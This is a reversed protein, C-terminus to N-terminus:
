SIGLKKKGESSIMDRNWPPNWVIEVNAEKVGPLRSLKAQADVAIAKGMGCGPATLTMQIEAKYANGPLESLEMKYVLGLDVINVPIEPDYCTKLQEWVRKELEERKIPGEAAAEPGAMPFVEKGIADADTGSLRFLGGFSPVLLTYSGGLSQTIVAKTGKVLKVKHGAPIQVVECDRTLEVPETSISM